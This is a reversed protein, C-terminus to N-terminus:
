LLHKRLRAVLQPDVWTGEPMSIIKELVKGDKIVYTEPFKFTGYSASIRAERDHATPYSMRMRDVFRKYSKENKDISVGLVVIGDKKVEESLAVLSPTEEVCPPCWTAWFNLVLIKGGFDRETYVRGKEDKISFSPAPDGANVTTEKLTDYVTWILGVCLLAMLGIWLRENKVPQAM